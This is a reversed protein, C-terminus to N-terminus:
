CQRRYGQDDISIIAKDSLPFRIPSILNSEFDRLFFRGLQKLTGHKSIKFSTRPTARAAPTQGHDKEGDKKV